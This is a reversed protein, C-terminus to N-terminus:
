VVHEPALPCAAATDGIEIQLTAHPIGFAHELHECVRHLFADGPHHSPIVLHATLANETTSMAWIHLDHVSSVEPLGALYGRVADVDIGPPVAQVSMRLSQWVLGIAQWVIVLSVALTLLPDILAWGTAAVVLGSVLVALSVVADGAMHLYAARINLDSASGRMFLWATFGNVFIGAAATAAVAGGHIAEVHQLRLIAAWAIGGTIVLLAVANTLAALISSGRLGYTFTRSPRRSALWTAGWALVLSLVDSLNHAADAVLALSNANIGVIWELVVFGANLAIGVAFATGFSAPAHVHGIGHAHGAHDHAHDHDHDHDNGHDHDHDHAHHDHQSAM